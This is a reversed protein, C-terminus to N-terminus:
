RLFDKAKKAGILRKYDDHDVIVLGRSDAHIKNIKNLHDKINQFAIYRFTAQCQPCRQADFKIGLEQCNGCSASLTGFILLHKKIEDLDLKRYVRIFEETM